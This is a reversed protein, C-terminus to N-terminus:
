ASPTVIRFMYGTVPIPNGDSAICNGFLALSIMLNNNQYFPEISKLSLEFGPSDTLNLTIESPYPDSEKGEIVDDFWSMEFSDLVPNSLNQFCSIDQQSSETGPYVIGWWKGIQSEINMEFVNGRSDFLVIWDTVKDEINRSNEPLIRWTDMQNEKAFPASFRTEVHRSMAFGETEVNDIILKGEGVFVSDPNDRAENLDFDFVFPFDGNFKFNGKKDDQESTYAIYQEVMKALNSPAINDDFPLRLKEYNSWKGTASNFLVVRFSMVRKFTLNEITSYLQITLITSAKDPKPTEAFWYLDSLEQSCNDPGFHISIDAPTGDSQIISATLTGDFIYKRINDVGSDDLKELNIGGLSKVVFGDRLGAVYSPSHIMLSKVVIKEGSEALKFGLTNALDVSLKELPALKIEQVVSNVPSKGPRSVQCASLAIAFFLIAIISITTKM